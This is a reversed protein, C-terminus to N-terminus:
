SLLSIIERIDELKELAEVKEIVHEIDSGSLKKVSYSACDKFKTEYLSFPPLEQKGTQPSEPRGCYVEGRRTKVSVKVPEQGQPDEQPPEMDLKIKDAIDLIDRSHIAEDTFDGIGARRRAIAASVAWPISFQSDILNRPHSKVEMPLSLNAQGHAYVTIESVDEARIDHKNVLALTIDVFSHTGKCCPYPKAQVNIGRFVKGLGETLAQPSYKGNHYVPYLGCEGELCNKAGSIGREAMAAATIGGRAAFGPGMRKTLSGDVVCQGNGACQHYAIGLANATQEENLGALKAAAGASAMFGYLPTLHWGAGPHGNAPPEKLGARFSAGLRCMMDVGLAAATIFEKGGGVNKREAAALCAPVIVVSPHTPGDGLDDYDLAHGMTANVQAANPAPVKNGYGIITSEPKGGWDIILEVLERVGERASGGLMVGLTDLIQRKTAEVVDQPLDNYNVSVFNRAFMLAADM